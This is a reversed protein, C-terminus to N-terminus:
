STWLREICREDEMFSRFIAYDLNTYFDFIKLTLKVNYQM